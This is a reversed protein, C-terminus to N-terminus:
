LDRLVLKHPIDHAGAFFEGVVDFALREYFGLAAVRGQAWLVEYGEARLRELAADILLRGAGSGRVDPDTAMGRLRAARKGPRLDTPEPFFTAIGIVRGGDDIAGLHFVGPVGDAPGPSTNSLVRLRLEHTQEAAIEEVRIGM